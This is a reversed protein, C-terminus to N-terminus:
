THSSTSRQAMDVGLWTPGSASTILICLLSLMSASVYLTLPTPTHRLPPSLPVSVPHTLPCLVLFSPWLAYPTIPHPNPRLNWGLAKDEGKVGMGETQSQEDGILQTAEM